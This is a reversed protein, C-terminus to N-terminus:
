QQVVSYTFVESVTQADFWDDDVEGLDLSYDETHTVGAAAPAKPYLGTAGTATFASGFAGALAGTGTRKIEYAINSRVVMSSSDTVVGAGPMGSLTATDDGDAITLSLKPLVTANVTVTSGAGSAYAVVGFVLAVVVIGTLVTRKM